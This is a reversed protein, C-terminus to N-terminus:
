GVLGRPTVRLSGGRLLFLWPGRSNGQRWFGVSRGLTHTYSAKESWKDSHYDVRAAAGLSSWPGSVAYREARVRDADRQKFREFSSIARATKKEDDVEIPVADADFWLLTKTQPHWLMECAGRSWRFVEGDRTEVELVSGLSAVVLDRLVVPAKSV